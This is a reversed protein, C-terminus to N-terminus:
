AIPRSKGSGIPRAGLRRMEDEAKRGDDPAVNVARIADDLLYVDYGLKIADRVTNLVCYDTALGGVFVRQAGARKLKANLDTGEFGSYADKEPTTAKSIVTAHPPLKLDPAFEAGHTNAICHPPWPGGQAKFSCHGPPHWDRTAFVPLARNRFTAVYRNLVPVVEDGHPVGLAGGPLFDNQVDVLILADGTTPLSHLDPNAAM